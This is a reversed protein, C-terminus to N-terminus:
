YSDINADMFAVRQTLFNKMYEVEKEYTGLVVKNPYVYKDLIPWKKFNAAQSLKLYSALNDIDTFMQQVEKTRVAKWKNRWRLNWAPDQALRIMWAANRSYWATPEGSPAYDCNGLSIDFDWVPGMGLKGNRDKYYFISSFDWSDQNKVTEEVLYWRMFSDADIYKAYGILPDKWNPSYLADETEQIYNKIYALQSPVIKEPEKIIFPLNKTKTRWNFDGDLRSDLEVLYGGTIDTPSTDTAKMETINVRNENVEVQNTLLYNGLHEGNMVVEVFRSQPAFDSGVRRALEFAIKTRILTKDNYNALLVWNKASPMGLMAAKNTFKLRYPKKPYNSWTSNGRGKIQLPITTVEQVVELNSNVVMSGTVYTEKSVVPGNTTIYLIPIGTFLKLKVIYNKTDGTPSTVTLTNANTYDTITKGDVQLTDSVKVTSGAVQPTFSLALKKSTNFSPIIASITDGTLVCNIDETLKGINNAATIKVATIAAIDKTIVPPDPTVEKSGKKCGWGAVTILALLLWLKNTKM